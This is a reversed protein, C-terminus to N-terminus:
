TYSTIVSSSLTVPLHLRSRTAPSVQTTTAQEELSSVPVATQVPQRGLGRLLPSQCSSTLGCM